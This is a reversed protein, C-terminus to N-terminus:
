LGSMVTDGEGDRDLFGDEELFGEGDGDEGRQGPYELDLVRYHKGDRALVVVVRREKRGNVVIKHPVFREGSAFVHITYTQVAALSIHTTDKKLSSIPSGTPLIHQATASSLCTTYPIQTAGDGSSPAFSQSAAYPIRLIRHGTTEEANDASNRTSPSKEAHLLVLLANDDAFSFHTITGPFSLRAISHSHLDRPLSTIASTHTLRHIRLTGSAQSSLAVYTSM